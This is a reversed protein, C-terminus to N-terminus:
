EETQAQQGLELVAAKFQELAQPQNMFVEATEIVPWRDDLSIHQFGPIGQLSRIFDDFVEDAVRRRGSTFNLWLMGDTVVSFVPFTKSGKRFRFSFSGLVNGTGWSIQAAHETSWAFLEEVIAVLAPPLTERITEFFMQKNWRKRKAGSSPSPAGKSAAGHVHPVLIDTDREQFRRMELASFAFAPNGCGNLFKVTRSLEENIGDVAVVLLFNGRELADSVNNRFAEEDWDAEEVESAVLDALRQGGRQYVREDVEEYTMGWLYAGYELIQGVVKRKIEPNAALKCEVVAIDGDISFALLDTSGSGPLGFEPVAVVLPSADERIEGVPILSPSEALLEQLEAENDYDASDVLRWQNSESGRVLIRV